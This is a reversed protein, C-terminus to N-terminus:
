ERIWKQVCWFKIEVTYPSGNRGVWLSRVRAIPKGPVKHVLWAMRFAMAVTCIWVGLKM